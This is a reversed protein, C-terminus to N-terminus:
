IKPLEMLIEPVTTVNMVPIDLWEKGPSDGKLLSPARVYELQLEALKLPNTSM